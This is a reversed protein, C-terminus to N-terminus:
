VCLQITPALNVFVLGTRASRTGAANSVASCQDSQLGRHQSWHRSGTVPGRGCYVAPEEPADPRFITGGTDPIGHITRRHRSSIQQPRPSRSDLADENTTTFSSVRM